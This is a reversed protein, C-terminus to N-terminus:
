DVEKGTSRHVYAEGFDLGYNEMREGILASECSHIVILLV